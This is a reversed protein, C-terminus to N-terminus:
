SGPEGDPSSKRGGGGGSMAYTAERMDAWMSCCVCAALVNGGRGVRVHIICSCQLNCPEASGFYIIFRESGTIRQHVYAVAAFFFFYQVVHRVEEGECAPIIISTVSCWGLLTGTHQTWGM